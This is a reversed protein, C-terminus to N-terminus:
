CYKSTTPYPNVAAGGGPHMEFHLHPTGRADGDDGVYGIVTGASVQGSAAYGSLHTGFYTIGDGGTLYFSRGGLRVSRHTVTGAVPAVVPTGMRAMIDNGKHSRGGGRPAGWDNSFSRPGQVPCVWSGSAIVGTPGTASRSSRAATARSAAEAALKAKHAKEAAALRDLEAYAAARQAKFLATARRQEAVRAALGGQDDALAARAARWEDLADTNGLTVYRAMAQGRAAAGLDGDFRIGQGGGGRMYTNVVVAKVAVDVAAIRQETEAVRQKQDRVAAEAQDLAREAAALRAAAQNARAQAAQRAKAPDAASAPPASLLTILVLVATLVALARRM